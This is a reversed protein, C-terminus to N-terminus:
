SSSFRAMINSLFKLSPGKVSVIKTVFKKSPKCTPPTIDGHLGSQFFRHSYKLLTVFNSCFTILIKRRNCCTFALSFNSSASIAFCSGRSGQHLLSCRANFIVGKNCQSIRGFLSSNMSCALIVLENCEGSMLYRTITVNPCRSTIIETYFMM